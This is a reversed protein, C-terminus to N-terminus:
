TEASCTSRSKAHPFSHPKSTYIRLLEPIRRPSREKGGRSNWHLHCSSHGFAWLPHNLPSSTIIGHSKLAQSRRNCLNCHKACHVLVYLFPSPPQPIAFHHHDKSRLFLLCHTEDFPQSWRKTFEDQIHLPQPSTYYLGTSQLPYGFLTHWSSIWIKCVLVPCFANELM